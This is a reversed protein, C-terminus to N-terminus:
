FRPEGEIFDLLQEEITRCFIMKDPARSHINPYFKGVLLIHGEKSMKAKYLLVGLISKTEPDRDTVSDRAYVPREAVVKGSEKDYLLQISPTGRMSSIASWSDIESRGTDVVIIADKDEMQGRFHKDFESIVKSTLRNPIAGGGLYRLIAAMQPTIVEIRISDDGFPVSIDPRKPLHVGDETVVESLESIDTKLQARLRGIVEIESLASNFQDEDESLLKKRIESTGSETEKIRILCNDIHNLHGQVALADHAEWKAVRLRGGSLEAEAQVIRQLYERYSCRVSGILKFFPTPPPSELEKENVSVSVFRKINPYYDLATMVLGPEPEYEVEKILEVLEGCQFIKPKKNSPFRSADKGMRLAITKLSDVCSQLCVDDQEHVPKWDKKRPINEIYEQITAMVLSNYREQQAFKNLRHVLKDRHRETIIILFSPYLFRERLIKESESVNENLWSEVIDLSEEVSEKSMEELAWILEGPIHHHNKIATNKIIELSRAVDDKGWVAISSGIKRMIYNDELDSAKELILFRIDKPVPNEILLADLANGLVEIDQFITKICDSTRKDAPNFHSIFFWVLQKKVEPDRNELIQNFIRDSLGAPIGTTQKNNDLVRITLAASLQELESPSSLRSEIESWDEPTERFSLALILGSFKTTNETKEQEM